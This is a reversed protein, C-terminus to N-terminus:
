TLVLGVEAFDERLWDAKTGNAYVGILGEESAKEPMPIPVVSGDAYVATYCGAKSWNESIKKRIAVARM